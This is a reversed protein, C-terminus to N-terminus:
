NEIIENGIKMAGAKMAFFESAINAVDKISLAKKSWIDSLHEELELSYKMYSFLSPTPKESVDKMEYICSRRGDEVVWLGNSPWGIFEEAYVEFEGKNNKIYFDM